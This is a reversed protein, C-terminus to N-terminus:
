KKKPKIWWNYFGYSWNATMIFNLAMLGWMGNIYASVYWFPQSVLGFAFGWRNKRGVLFVAAATFVFLGAQAIADLTALDIM